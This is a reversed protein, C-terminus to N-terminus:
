EHVREYAYDGDFYQNKCRLATMRNKMSVKGRKQRAEEELREIERQREEKSMQKIYEPIKCSDDLFYPEIKKM